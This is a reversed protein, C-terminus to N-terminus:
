SPYSGFDQLPEGVVDPGKGQDWPTVPLQVQEEVVLQDDAVRRGFASVSEAEVVRASEQVRPRDRRLDPLPPLRDASGNLLHHSATDVRGVPLKAQVVVIGLELGLPRGVVATGVFASERAREDDDGSEHADLFVSTGLNPATAKGRRM